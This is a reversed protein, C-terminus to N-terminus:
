LKKETGAKRIAEEKGQKEKGERGGERGREPSSLVVMLASM